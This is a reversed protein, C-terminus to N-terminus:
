LVPGGHRGLVQGTVGAGPIWYRRRGDMRLCRCAYASVCVGIGVGVYVCRYGGM